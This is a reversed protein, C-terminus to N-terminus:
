PGFFVPIGDTSLVFACATGDASGPADIRYGRAEREVALTRCDVGGDRGVLILRRSRDPRGLSGLAPISAALEGWDGPEEVVTVGPRVGEAPIAVVEPSARSAVSGLTPAELADAEAMERLAAAEEGERSAKRRQLVPEGTPRPAAPPTQAFAESAEQKGLAEDSLAGLESRAEAPSPAYTTPAEPAPEAVSRRADPKADRAGTETRGLDDDVEAEVDAVDGSALQRPESEFAVGEPTSPLRTPDGHRWLDPAFIAVALV